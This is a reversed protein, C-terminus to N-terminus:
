FRKAAIVDNGCSACKWNKVENNGCGNCKTEVYILKNVVKCKVFKSYNESIAYSNYETDINSTVIKM